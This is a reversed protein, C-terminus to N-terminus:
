SWLAPNFPDVPTRLIQKYCVCYITQLIWWVNATKHQENSIIRRKMMNSHFLSIIIWCLKRVISSMHFFTQNSGQERRNCEVIHQCFWPFFVSCFSMSFILMLKTSNFDGPPSIFLFGVRLYLPYFLCWTSCLARYWKTDPTESQIGLSKLLKKWVLTWGWVSQLRRPQTYKAALGCATSRNDHEGWSKFCYQQDDAVVQRFYDGNSYRLM